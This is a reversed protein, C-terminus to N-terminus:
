LADDSGWAQGPKLRIGQLMRATSSRKYTFKRQLLKATLSKKTGPEEGASRAYAVWSQYLASTAEFKFENGPEADCAEELWSQLIDQQEFYDATADKVVNPRVLGHAQWDLCGEIMWRLIGPREARLKEELHPDPNEPKFEFPLLNFRRKAADDVNRLVPRHNGIIHLKFTPTFEFFDGRMFRAAIRDGGTLSKIRAEAWARGEETESATVFRAGRLMALETPHRDGHSLTFVEMPATVAYDGLISSVLNAFVSKGNRGPGHAFSLAHESTDGTLCYGTWQKLFRAYARDGRTVDSIFREWTPRASPAVAALKTIRDAPDASKLRGTKLDITGDPTGLLWPDADWAESTVAVRRDAAAFIEVAKAFRVSSVKGASRPDGDAAVDRIYSRVLDFAQRTQDLGWRSGDWVYWAARTHDFRLQDCHRGIFRLALDDESHEVVRPPGSNAQLLATIDRLTM